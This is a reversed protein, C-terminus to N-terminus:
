IVFVYRKYEKQTEAKKYEQNVTYIALLYVVLLIVIGLVFLAFLM